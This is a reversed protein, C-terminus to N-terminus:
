IKKRYYTYHTYLYSNEIFNYSKKHHNMMKIYINLLIYLTYLSVQHIFINSCNLYVTHM